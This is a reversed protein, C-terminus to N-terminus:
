KEPGVLEAGLSRLYAAAAAAFGAAAVVVGSAAGLWFM